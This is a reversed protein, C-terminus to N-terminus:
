PSAYKDLNSNFFGIIEGNMDLKIANIGDHPDLTINVSIYRRSCIPKPVNILPKSVLLPIAIISSNLFLLFMFSFKVISNVIYKIPTIEPIM